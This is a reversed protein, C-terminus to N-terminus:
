HFNRTRTDSGEKQVLLKISSLGRVIIGENLMYAYSLYRLFEM